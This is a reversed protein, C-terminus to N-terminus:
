DNSNHSSSPNSKISFTADNFPPINAVKNTRPSLDLRTLDNLLYYETSASLPFHPLLTASIVPSILVSSLSTLFSSRHFPIPTIPLSSTCNAFHLLQLTSLFLSSHDPRSSWVSSRTEDDERRSSSKGDRLRVQASLVTFFQPHRSCLFLVVGDSFSILSPYTTKQYIMKTAEAAPDM